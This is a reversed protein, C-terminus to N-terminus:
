EVLEVLPLVASRKVSPLALALMPRAAGPAAAEAVASWFREALAVRDTIGDSWEFAMEVTPGYRQRAWTDTAAAARRERRRRAACSATLMGALAAPSAADDRPAPPAPWPGLTWRDIAPEVQARHRGVGGTARPARRSAAARPPAFPSSVPACLALTVLQCPLRM